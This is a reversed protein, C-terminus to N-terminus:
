GSRAFLRTAVGDVAFEAHSLLAYGKQTVLVRWYRADLGDPGRDLLGDEELRRAIRSTTTKDLGALEAIERQAVADKHEEHLEAAADLVLFRTHTLGLPRLVADVSSQWQMATRWVEFGRETAARM